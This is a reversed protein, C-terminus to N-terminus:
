HPDSTRRGSPWIAGASGRIVGPRAGSAATARTPDRETYIDLVSSGATMYDLGYIHISITTTADANAVDHIDQEGALLWTVHGQALVHQDAQVLGDAALRFSRELERGEHVGVVCWSRHSHIPTRQGPQWVLAVISYAGRPHVHMVNTRYHDRFGRRDSDRLLDERGLYPALALAVAAPKHAAPTTGVVEDLTHVLECLAAAGVPETCVNM